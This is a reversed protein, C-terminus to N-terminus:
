SAKSHDQFNSKTAKSRPVYSHPWSLTSIIEDDETKTSM